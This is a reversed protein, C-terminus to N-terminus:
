LRFLYSAKLFFGDNTRRLSGFQLGRPETLFSSYGAFFVTGPPPQHSFLADVRLRDRGFPPSPLYVGTVTQVRTGNSRRYVGSAAGPASGSRTPRVSTSPAPRVGRIAAGTILNNPSNFLEAGDLFFPRKELFVLAGGRNGSGEILAGDSQRARRLRGRGSRAVCDDPNQFRVRVVNCNADIVIM